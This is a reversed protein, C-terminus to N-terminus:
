ALNTRGIEKDMQAKLGHSACNTVVVQRRSNFGVCADGRTTLGIPFSSILWAYPEELANKFADHQGFATWVINLSDVSLSSELPYQQLVARDDLKWKPEKFDEGAYFISVRRNAIGAYLSDIVQKGSVEYLEGDIWVTLVVLGRGQFNRDLGPVQNQAISAVEPDLSDLTLVPM